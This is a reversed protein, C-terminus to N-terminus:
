RQLQTSCGLKLYLRDHLHSAYLAEFRQVRVHHRHNGDADGRERAADGRGRAVRPQHHGTRPVAVIAEQGLEAVRGLAVAYTGVRALTDAPPM